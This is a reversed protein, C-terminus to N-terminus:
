EGGYDIKKDAPSQMVGNILTGPLSQQDEAQRCIKPNKAKEFIEVKKHIREADNGRIESSGEIKQVQIDNQGHADGEVGKLGQRVCNIDIPLFERGCRGKQVKGYIYSKEGLENSSGDFTGTM